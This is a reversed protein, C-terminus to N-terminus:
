FCARTFVPRSELTQGQAKNVTMVFALKIPFQRRRLKFPLDTDAPTLDIRPLFILDGRRQGTIVKAQIVNDQLKKIIMRTGNCLGKKPDVNRLLMVVAGVKLSLKHPPMGHPTMSNLFESPYAGIEDPEDSVGSDVSYYYKQKGRLRELVSDNPKSCPDNKPTLIAKNVYSESNEPGIQKGFIDSM